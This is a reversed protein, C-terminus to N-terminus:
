APRSNLSEGLWSGLGRLPEVHDCIIKAAGLLPIALILGPGGWIWAWFLLSLSVALPNLSLRRGIVKPYIVNMTIVHLVVVSIVLIMIGTRSVTDIGAALPAVLSLFVGLYPILGAFGSIVGIFYFYKIGLLWFVVACIAGNLLGVFVNASIYGRIMASIRGVTRHALLRHERPFLRVTSVHCHEKTALMFYVLFPVFGVALMLDLITGSNESILRALGQPQQLKVPIPAKGEKAPEVVARAQTEIENARIQIKEVTSRLGASYQPLQDAFDLARNYSLYTLGAVTMGALLVVILAGMWRPIKLFSLWQVLPELAYALLMSSLTTVLVLKLLYVLGIIAVTAVVIQAVSAAKISAQLIEADEAELRAAVAPELVDALQSAQSV